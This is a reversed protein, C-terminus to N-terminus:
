RWAGARGSAGLGGGPARLGAWSGSRRESRARGRPPPPPPPLLDISGGRRACSMPFSLIVTGTMFGGSISGTFDGSSSNGFCSKLMRRLRHGRGFLRQDAHNVAHLRGIGRRGLTRAAAAPRCPCRVPMADRIPSRARVRSPRRSRHRPTGARTRISSRTNSLSTFGCYVASAM